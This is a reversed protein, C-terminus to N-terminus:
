QTFIYGQANTDGNETPTSITDSPISESSDKPGKTNEENTANNAGGESNNISEGQRNVLFITAGIIVILLVIVIVAIINKKEM